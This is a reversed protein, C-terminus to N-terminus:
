EQSSARDQKDARSVGLLLFLGVALLEALLVAPKESGDIMVFFALNVIASLQFWFMRGSVVAFPLTWTVYWPMLVPGTLLITGLPILAATSLSDITLRDKWTAYAVALLVFTGAAARAYQSPDSSASFLLKLVQFAGGNFEWSTAFAQPGASASRALPWPVFPLAMFALSLSTTLWGVRRAIAPLIVIPALKVGVAAAFCIAAVGRRGRTLAYIMAALMLVMLGDFHGSGAFVKIVLPNWGYLLLWVQSRGLRALTAALFLMTALDCVILSLKLAVVSGPAVAHLFRFFGQALPPYITTLEPYNINQRIDNWVANTALSDLRPDEPALEYPNRGSASVRGDWLYRWHDNDYLLHSDFVTERGALDRALLGPIASLPTSEPLGAPILTLRFLLAGIFILHVKSRAPSQKSTFHWALGYLAFLAAMIALFSFVDTAGNGPELRTLLLYFAESAVLLAPLAPWRSTAKGQSDRM